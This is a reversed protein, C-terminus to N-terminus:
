VKKLQHITNGNTFYIANHSSFLRMTSDFPPDAIAEVKHNTMFLQLEDASSLLACVGVGMVTMNITDYAVDEIKRIDFDTYDKKFVIIFQDYKGNKEAIVVIVNRESKAELVRYGDLHPVFKTICAGKDTPLTIVTKGLLDQIVVGEYMTASYKSVNDVESVVHIIRNSMMSFKSEILKGNNITYVCDNRVMMDSSNVTDILKGTNLELFKIELGSQIAGIMTGDTAKVVLAKKINNLDMLPKTKGMVGGYIRKNTIVYILDMIYQVHIISESFAEIQIVDLKNTGKLIVITNPVTIPVTSDAYPPVSRNNNVFVDKFYAMHRAPIVAFDNVSPPVRVGPHLVSVNDDMQKQKDKPRYNAHNGRFPHINTYLWFSLIAWSYWDSMSDPNYVLKGNADLTSVRRDRVSDMIATAKFTPTAYSDTDIFWPILTPTTVGVLVNLENFDVILCNAKHIDDTALQLQKVLDAIQGPNINNDNKFTRTFLKLLPEVNDVYPATYGLPEGTSADYVVDKPTIVNPNTIKGLELIKQIPLNKKTPDHYLKFVTGGNVYISAEGGAAKYNKDTITITGGRQGIKVKKNM